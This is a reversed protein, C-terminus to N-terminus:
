KVLEAVLARVNEGPRFSDVWKDFSVLKSMNFGHEVEKLVAHRMMVKQRIPDM